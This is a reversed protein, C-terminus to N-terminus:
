NRLWELALLVQEDGDGTATYDFASAVDPTIGDPFRNMDRDVIVSESIVMFLGHGIDEYGTGTTYGATREGIFMTNDRGRLAIAVLEGSSITYRSLLVAVKEDDEISPGDELECVLRESDFFVGDTIEYRRVLDGRADVAGGVFGEGILPALGAMMPNMNGGGNFRLDVIWASAGSASLARLGDRIKRAQAEVDGPGIGVVRLYGIGDALMFSIFEASTDHIVRGLFEANWPAALSEAEGTYWAVTSFGPAARATGHKDGLTNILYGLGPTLEEATEGGGVLARFELDLAEWDVGDAYLSTEQARQVIPHLGPATQSACSMLSVAVACLSMVCGALKPISRVM